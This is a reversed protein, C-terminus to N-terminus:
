DKKLRAIVGCGTKWSERDYFVHAIRQSRRFVGITVGRRRLFDSCKFCVDGSVEAERIVPGVEMRGDYDIRM